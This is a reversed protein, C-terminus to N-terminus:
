MEPRNRIKLNLGYKMGFVPGYITEVNNNMDDYEMQFHRLINIAVMKAQMLAFDRGLCLRPTINFMPFTYEDFTNYYQKKYFRLPNFVTADDGYIHKCRAYSYTLIFVSNGERIIHDTYEKDNDLNPVQIPFDKVAFRILFPVPPYFRLTELLAAELYPYKHRNGTEHYGHFMEEFLLPENKNEVIEKEIQKLIEINKKQLIEYFFWSLLVRTTDRAALIFNLTIDRIEKDNMKDQDNYKLFLSLLDYYEKGSEDTLNKM